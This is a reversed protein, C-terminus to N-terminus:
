HGLLIDYTLPKSVRVYTGGQITSSYVIPKPGLEDKLTKRMEARKKERKEQLSPKKKTTQFENFIKEVARQMELDNKM